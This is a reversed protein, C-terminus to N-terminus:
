LKYKIGFILYNLSQNNITLNSLGNSLNFRSNYADNDVLSLLEGLHRSEASFTIKDLTYSVELNLNKRSYTINNITNTDYLFALKGNWKKNKLLISFSNSNYTANYRINQVDNTIFSFKSSISFNLLHDTITELTFTPSIETDKLDIMAGEIIFPYFDNKYTAGIDVKTPYTLQFLTKSYNASISFDNSSSAQFIELESIGSSLRLFNNKLANKYQNYAFSLSASIGDFINTYDYSTFIHNSSSFQSPFNISGFVVQNFPQITNIGSELDNFQRKRNYELSIRNLKNEYDISFEIPVFTSSNQNRLSNNNLSISLDYDIKKFVDKGSFELDITYSDMERAVVQSNTIRDKIKEDISEYDFTLKPIFEELVKYKIYSSSKITNKTFKYDQFDTLEDNNINYNNFLKSSEQYINLRADTLLNKKLKSTISIQNLLSSTKYMNRSAIQNTEVPSGESFLQNSINNLNENDITNTNISYTAITKDTVRYALSGAGLFSVADSKTTSKSDIIPTGDLTHIRNILSNLRNPALYYLVASTKLKQGQSRITLNTNTFFDKELNENSSFLVNLARIQYPSFAQNESFISNIENLKTSNKGINNTNNTLFTNIKESFLFGNGNFEYKNTIGYKANITGNFINQSTINTNINLVTEEIDDFDLSFNDKYNNVVSIGNIIKNEISELAISNQNIFSEKENILIKNINKGKYIITGDDNLRFSPIKKLIDKLSSDDFLKLKKLDLKVTDNEKNASLIVVENLTNTDEKLIFDLTIPQNNTPVKSVVKNQKKYAIHTVEVKYNIDLKGELTYKGNQDTITYTVMDDTLDYLIITAGDILDGEINKVSGEIVQQSLMLFPMLLALIISIHKM